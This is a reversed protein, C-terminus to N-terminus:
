VLAIVRLNRVSPIKNTNSSTFVIKIAFMTFEDTATLNFEVEKYVSIDDSFPMTVAPFETWAGDDFTGADSGIKYYVEIDSSKPKNTDLFVKLINSPSDLQVTKTLYKALASGNIKDTEAVDTNVDIVNSVAIVSCRTMDIVPSLNNKTSRMTGALVMTPTSGSEIVKEVKPYYNSNPVVSLYSSSLSGGVSTDRIGWGMATGPFTLSQVVPHLINFALNQTASMSSGGGVGSTSAVDSAGATYTYSNRKVGAITFTGNLNAEDIGHSTTAGVITVSDGNSMGHNNHSVTVTGSTNSLTLPNNFLSRSPLVENSLALYYNTDTTFVARHMVFKLDSTQDETWTSANQSKFMVGNYPQKMILDNTVEDELGQTAFKVRYDDSNSMIVFCYEVNEQLHVPSDFWFKTATGDVKVIRTTGNSEYPNLTKESYPVVTQTPSGNLMTRISVSVPINADASTFYLDLATVMVGGSMDVMFSQALPDSWGCSQTGMGGPTWVPNVYAASLNPTSGSVPTVQTYDTYSTQNGTVSGTSSPQTQTSTSSTSSSVSRTDTVSNRRVYPTRTSLAVNEVTELLGKAYYASSAFTTVTSTTEPTTSDVLIFERQGSEFNISSNNPVYFTGSIAGNADTTLTTAGNPHATESNPGVLPVPDTDSSNYARVWDSIDVGDFFAYVRTNPRLLTAEFKVVRSRIFPRFAISVQRDGLNSIVTGTGISTSTGSRALHETTTTTTTTIAPDTPHGYSATSSETGVWNTEWSGWVTGTSTTQQLSQLLANYVGDNNLMVTPRRDIDKWEDSHPTLKISGTWNFVSYPNVNISGSSQTQTILATNTYPITVLDGTVTTTSNSTEYLLKANGESFLPRLSGNLPDIGAKYEPSSTRGVKTTKFSDVLFGSKFRLTGDAPNLVQLANAETELLSLTTYYELNSVRNEIKGIDKMTYRKNDIFTIGVEDTNLTYARIYLEYLIMSDKPSEPPKPTLSPVGYVVDLIGEKNILVKDIRDLYYQIDTEFQSDPIPCATTSANTGTFNTAGDAMRPRFDVASRLEIDEFTPINDYGVSSPYSDVTFYDGSSHVFYDYTVTVNGTMVYNSTSKLKVKGHGYYSPTQGSDIEFNDTIVVSNADTVSTISFVDSHGLTQYQHYDISGSYTLTTSGSTKTKDKLDGIVNVNRNVPAILTASSASLGSIEVSLSDGAITIAGSTLTISSGDSNDILTWENLNSKSGITEPSSVSFSAVGSVINTDTGLIRIAEYSCNFDATHPSTDTDSDLTKVRSNPLSFVLTDSGLNADDIAATFTPSSNNLNALTCDAITLTASPQYDFVHLRFTTSTLKVISRVRVTAVTASSSNVINILEFNTINPYSVMTSVDIYNNTEIQVVKDTSLESDRAKNFNINTVATTVIEFGQVYAKSPEVSAVLKTADSAHDKITVPFPNVTYNGSEDFTRRAMTEGIINYQTKKAPSKVVAGGELRILLIFNTSSSDKKALTAKISYRHAGPASVNPTGAANDVLSNDTSDSVLTESVNFGIDASVDASYKELVLTQDKVIVFNKKIYYIGEGISVLSGVGIPTEATAQVTASLGTGTLTADAVFKSSGSVYKVFLTVPDTSVAAEVHLVKAYNTGDNIEKGLFDSLTTVTTTVKIYDIRNHVNLEGPIVVAGDKFMHDAQSSIQNQLTSQLQTLERAQIAHGPRFLIKNYKERPTLGDVATAQDFDDWYPEINFKISM